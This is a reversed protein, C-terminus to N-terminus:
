ECVSRVQLPFAERPLDAGLGVAGRLGSYESGVTEVGVGVLAGVLMFGDRGSARSAAGVWGDDAGRLVCYGVFPVMGSAGAFAVMGDAFDSTCFRFSGSIFAGLTLRGLTIMSWLTGIAKSTM